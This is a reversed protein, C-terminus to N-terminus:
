FFSGPIEGGGALGEKTKEKNTVGPPPPSSPLTRARSRLLPFPPISGVFRTLVCPPFPPSLLSPFPALSIRANRITRPHEVGRTQARHTLPDRAKRTSGSLPHHARARPARVPERAYVDAAANM